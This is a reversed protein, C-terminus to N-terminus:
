LEKYSKDFVKTIVFACVFGASSKDGGTTLDNNKLITILGEVEKTEM